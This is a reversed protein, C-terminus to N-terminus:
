SVLEKARNVIETGIGLRQSIAFANSKGPVGISLKYTPRLSSVDFECSGNEVGETELAFLKIEAYHTTAAIRAGKRRLSEIISIALAAGEVPDTGAGLEDLLVLTRDDTKELISIINVMHASFTSLNQEISQEDGIDALVNEFVSIQSGDAAPIMLGCMAMLTFLGLTKLAVTKGGTNPGTIILTDFADGLYIDTPVVVTKAIMPHRAKKLRIVGDDTLVPEMAQMKDALRSKAFILDIEVVSDYDQLISQSHEGVLASLEAVIRAIEDSEKGQLLRIENNAEVVGLPEIFLTAGSSSTDHVLGKIEARHEAKVPVVYRGDRMTVLSEQLYKQYAPSHILKDLQNKVSLGANRIKRRIDALAPSANDAVMDESLIATNIRDEIFPHPTLGSFLYDLSTEATECHKRWDSLSRITRLANSVELLERLSLSTGLEARKVMNKINKFNYVTPSGYRNSLANADATQRMEEKARYLSTQPELALAKEKSDDCSACEALMNLIKDLELAQQHKKEIPM